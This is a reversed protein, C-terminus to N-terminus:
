VLFVILLAGFVLAVFVILLVSMVIGLIKGILALQRNEPSRRGADIAALEQSGMAWAFPALLPFLLMGLLGLVFVTTARSAEPYYGMGRAGPEPAGRIRGTM